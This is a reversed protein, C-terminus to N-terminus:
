TVMSIKSMLTDKKHIQGIPGDICTCLQTYWMESSYINVSNVTNDSNLALVTYTNSGFEWDHTPTGGGAAGCGDGSARASKENGQQRERLFKSNLKHM